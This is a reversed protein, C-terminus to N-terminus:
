MSVFRRALSAGYLVQQIGLRKASRQLAEAVRGARGPEHLWILAGQDTTIHALAGPAAADVVDILTRKDIHRVRRPDIPGNGHKATVIMLTADFRGKAKLEAM